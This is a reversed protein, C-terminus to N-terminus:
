FGPAPQEPIQNRLSLNLVNWGRIAAIGYSLEAIETENFHERLEPYAADTDDRAPLANVADAWALAARERQSFFPAERWGAIANLHRPDAGQKLLSRWHMDVCVGCGNVQSVRLNVLEFLREGISSQSVAKSLNIMAHLPKPALTFFPVRATNSM